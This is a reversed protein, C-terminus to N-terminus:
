YIEAKEEVVKPIREVVKAVAKKLLANEEKLKENEKELEAVKEILYDIKNNLNIIIRKLDNNEEEKKNEIKSEIEALKVKVKNVEDFKEILTKIVEAQNVQAQRLTLIENKIKEIDEKVKKFARKISEAAIIVITKGKNQIKEEQLIQEVM